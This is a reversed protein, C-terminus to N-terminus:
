VNNIWSVQKNLLQPNEEYEPFGIVDKNVGAAIASSSVLLSIICVILVTRFYMM